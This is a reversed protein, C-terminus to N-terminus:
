PYLKKVEEIRQGRDRNCSSCRMQLAEIVYETINKVGGEVALEVVTSYEGLRLREKFPYDPMRKFTSLGRKHAFPRTNGTNMRALTISQHFDTALRFTDLVLVIHEEGCYERACMLTQLRAQCLWFFVRSNLMGLWQDLSCDTLCGELKSLILPKQDRIIAKGYAPHEIPIRRKRQGALIAARKEAPVEFLHLLADTCLLGHRQINEWSDCEAMHYLHPYYQALEAPTVGM